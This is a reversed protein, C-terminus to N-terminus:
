FAEFQMDRNGRQYHFEELKSIQKYFSKIITIFTRNVWRRVSEINQIDGVDNQQNVFNQTKSVQM